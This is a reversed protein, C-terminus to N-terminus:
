PLGTSFTIFISFKGFHTRSDGRAKAGEDVGGWERKQAIILEQELHKTTTWTDAGYAM